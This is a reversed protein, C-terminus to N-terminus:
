KNTIFNKIKKNTISSETNFPDKIYSEITNNDLNDIAAYDLTDMIALAQFFRLDKHNPDSFFKTLSECIELNHTQRSEM